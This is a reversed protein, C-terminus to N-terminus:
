LKVVVPRPEKPVNVVVLLAVMPPLIAIDEPLQIPRLEPLPNISNSSWDVSSTLIKFALTPIPVDVGLARKSAVVPVPCTAWLPNDTLFEPSEM